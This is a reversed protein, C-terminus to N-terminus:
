QGYFFRKQKNSEELQEMTVDRKYQEKGKGSVFRWIDSFFYGTKMLSTQPRVGWVAWALLVAIGAVVLINLIWNLIHNILSLIKNM